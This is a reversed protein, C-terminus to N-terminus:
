FFNEACYIFAILNKINTKGLKYINKKLDKKLYNKETKFKVYNNAIFTLDRKLRNSVKYKHCFYEFNDEKDVLLISFIIEASQKLIKKQLM